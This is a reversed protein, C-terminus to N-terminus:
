ALARARYEKIIECHTHLCDELRAGELIAVAFGVELTWVHNRREWSNTSLANRISGSCIMRPGSPSEM